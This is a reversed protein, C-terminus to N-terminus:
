DIIGEQQRVTEGQFDTVLKETIIISVRRNMAKTNEDYAQRKLPEYAGCAETTMREPRIGKEVLHKRVAEARAYSLDNLTAFPAYLRPPKPTAHGRIRIKFNYGRVNKAFGDLQKKVGDLLRAKGPEFAVAGGFTFETGPRITKVSPNQGEIGEDASKGERLEAKHVTLESMQSVVTNTPPVNGPIFGVGGSYGFARKVSELVKQFREDEKLESMSVLIVFFCLLLTMMDGYTVMYDPVGAKEKKKRKAMAQVLAGGSRM